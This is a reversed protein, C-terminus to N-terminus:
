LDPHTTDWNAARLHWDITTGFSLGTCQDTWSQLEDAPWTETGILMVDECISGPPLGLNGNANGGYAAPDDSRFTSRRVELRPPIGMSPVSSFKFFGGHRGFGYTDTDYSQEYGQLRVLTDQVLVTKGTGDPPDPLVRGANASLFVHCGDFKSDLVAGEFMGDNEICDDHVYAGPFMAGGDAGVGVVKWREARYTFTIGDGTNFLRLGVVTADPNEQVFGYTDHWTTWPTTEAHLTTNVTGGVFCLDVRQSNVLDPRHIKVGVRHGSPSPEDYVWTQGGAEITTSNAIFTSPAPWPVTHQDGVVLVPRAEDRCMGVAVDRATCSVSVAVLVLLALVGTTRVRSTRLM